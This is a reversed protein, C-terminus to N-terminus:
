KKHNTSLNCKHLSAALLMSVLIAYRKSEWSNSSAAVARQGVVRWLLEYVVIIIRIIIFVSAFSEDQLADNMVQKWDETGETSRDRIMFHSYASKAQKLEGLNELNFRLFHSNLSRVAM